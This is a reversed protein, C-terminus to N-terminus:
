RTDSRQELPQPAQASLDVQRSWAYKVDELQWTPEFGRAVVKFGHGEYFRCARENQRFTFLWLSGSSEDQALRLLQTGIGRGIHSVKVHLLTVTEPTSAMFGALEDQSWALRVRNKPVIESRFFATQEEISHPDRIGVGFEFSERWLPVLEDTVGPDFDTLRLPAPPQIV